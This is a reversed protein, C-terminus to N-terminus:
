SALRTGRCPVSQAQRLAIPPFLANDHDSRPYGQILDENAMMQGGEGIHSLLPHYTMFQLNGTPVCIEISTNTCFYLMKASHTGAWDLKPSNGIVKKTVSFEKSTLDQISKDDIFTTTMMM